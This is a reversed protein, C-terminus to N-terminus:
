PTARLGGLHGFDVEFQTSCQPCQVPVQSDGSENIQRYFRQLYALDSSFLGEVHRPTVETIQGLRTIVRSLLIIVLYAQNAKVRPDRLPAIEDLATALRMTGTKHLNGDTDVYGRPLTFEFETKLVNM